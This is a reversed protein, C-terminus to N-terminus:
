DRLKSVGAVGLLCLLAGLLWLAPAPTSPVPTVGVRFTLGSQRNPHDDYWSLWASGMATVTVETFKQDAEFTPVLDATWEVGSHDAPVFGDDRDLWNDPSTNAFNELTAGSVRVDDSNNPFIYKAASIPADPNPDVPIFKISLASGYPVNDVVFSCSTGACGTYGDNLATVPVEMGDVFLEFRLFPWDGDHVAYTPAGLLLLLTLTLLKM